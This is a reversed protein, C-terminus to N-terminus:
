LTKHLLVIIPAQKKDNYICGFDEATVEVPIQNDALCIPKIFLLFILIIIYKKM